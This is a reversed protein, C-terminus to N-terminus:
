RLTSIERKTFERGSNKSRITEAENATKCVGIVDVIKDKELEAVERIPMFAFRIGPIDSTDSQCLQVITDAGFSIEYDHSLNSYEKKAGKLYGGQIYYVKNQEFRDYLRDCERNFGTGRIEGDADTLDVNFLKGEGRANSYHRIDSKNMVRAKITWGTQYPTLFKIPM